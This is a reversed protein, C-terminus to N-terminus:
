RVTLKEQHCPRLGAATHTRRVRTKVARDRWKSREALSYCGVGQEPIWLAQRFSYFASGSAAITFPQQAVRRSPSWAGPMPLPRSDCKQHIARVTWPRCRAGSTTRRCIHGYPATVTVWTVPPENVLESPIPLPTMAISNRPARHRCCSLGTSQRAHPWMSRGAPLLRALFSRANLLTHRSRRFPRHDLLIARCSM